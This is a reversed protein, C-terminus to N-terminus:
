NEMSSIAEKTPTVTSNTLSTFFSNFFFFLYNRQFSWLFREGGAVGCFGGGGFDGCAMVEGALDGDDGAAVGADAEFGDFDEGVGAGM